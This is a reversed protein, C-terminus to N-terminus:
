MPVLKLMGDGLLPICPSPFLTQMECSFAGQGPRAGFSKSLLAVSPVSGGFDHTEQLSRKAVLWLGRGHSGGLMWRDESIGYNGKRPKLISKVLM